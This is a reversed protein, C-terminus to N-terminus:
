NRLPSLLRTGSQRDTCCSAKFGSRRPKNHPESLSACPAWTLARRAARSRRGRLSERARPVRLKESRRVARPASTMGGWLDFRANGMGWCSEGFSRTRPNHLRGGSIKTVLAKFWTARAGVGLTFRCAACVCSWM